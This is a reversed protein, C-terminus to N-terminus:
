FGRYVRSLVPEESISKGTEEGEGVIESIMKQLKEDQHM